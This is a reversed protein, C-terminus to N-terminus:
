LAAIPGVGPVTMFRRCLPDAAVVGILTKHLANYGSVTAKWVQLMTHIFTQLAGDTETTLELVRAEFGGRAVHGMRLGFARLSGM